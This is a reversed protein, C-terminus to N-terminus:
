EHNFCKLIVGFTPVYSVLTRALQTLEIPSDNVLPVFALQQTTSLTMESITASYLSDDNELARLESCGTALDRSLRITAGECTHVSARSFSVVRFRGTDDLIFHHSDINDVQGHIIGVHHLACMTLMKLRKSEHINLDVVTGSGCWELVLCTFITNNNSEGSFLGFCTPVLTGQLSKLYEQYLLYEYSLRHLGDQGTAWKLAVARTEKHGSFTKANEGMRIHPIIARFVDHGACPVPLKVRLSINLDDTRCLEGWADTCTTVDQQNGGAPSLSQLTLTTDDFILKLVGTNSMTIPSLVQTPFPHPPSSEVSPDAM